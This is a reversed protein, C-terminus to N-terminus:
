FFRALGHQHPELELIARTVGFGNEARAVRRYEFHHQVEKGPFIVFEYHRSSTM